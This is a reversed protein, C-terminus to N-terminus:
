PGHRSGVAGHFTADVLRRTCSDYIRLTGSLAGTGTFRGAWLTPRHRVPNGNLPSYFRGDPRIFEYAPAMAFRDSGVSSSTRCRFSSRFSQVVRGGASVALRVEGRVISRGTLPATWTGDAVRLRRGRHVRWRLTGSPWGCGISSQVQVSFTGSGRATFAGTINAVDTDRKLGSGGAPDSEIVSPIADM